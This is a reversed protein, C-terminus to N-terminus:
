AARLPKAPASSEVRAAIGLLQRREMVFHVLGVIPRGIWAPLGYFPYARSGRARVMLRTRGDHLDELVFAWTMLPEADESPRWALVLHRNTEFTQVHFGGTVGPRAPLLAGTDLTQLEPIITVASRHRGNDLLDYSYWGARTGAGMQILWPWVDQRPRAITIAHNLSAIAHAILEDGPLVRHKEDRTAAVSRRGLYLVGILVVNVAVGIITLPWWIVCLVLSAAVVGATFRHAWPARLGIAAAAIGFAAACALWLLGGALSVRDVFGVLHALGHAALLAALIFRM